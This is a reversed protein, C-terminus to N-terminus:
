NSGVLVILYLIIFNLDSLRVQRGFLKWFIM